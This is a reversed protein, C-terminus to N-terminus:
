LEFPNQKKELGGAHRHVIANTSLNPIWKELGGAHRHVNHIQM